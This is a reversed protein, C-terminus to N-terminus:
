LLVVMYHKNNNEKTDLLLFINLINVFLQTEHYVRYNQDKRLGLLISYCPDPLAFRGM